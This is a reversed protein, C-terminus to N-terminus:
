SLLEKVKDIILANTRKKHTGIAFIVIDDKNILKKNILFNSTYKIREFCDKIEPKVFPYVGFWAKLQRAVKKNITFAFIPAKPRFNSISSATFGTKTPTIIAKVNLEYSANVASKAVFETYDNVKLLHPEILKEAKRILKDMTKVAELPYKGKATEGSLMVCDTKDLVANIVDSAEARTPRPNKTMSELMQTAVITFKRKERALKIIKKQWIPVEEIPIEVGLDGRAIMVGDSEEIIEELNDLAQKNEIKAILKINEGKLEKLLKKVELIDSKNRVFSLAIFDFDNKVAFEIDKKDKESLFPIKLDVGPINVGKKSSIFGSNKVKCIIDKNKTELVELEILGDDLLIKDGKKIDKYLEKYSISFEKENGIIDKNRITVISGEKLFVEGKFEGTRIEPGKTDLLLAKIEDKEKELKRILKVRRLHEKYDGHSFNLRFIDVYNFLENLIEEKESAPGITAIIKTLRLNNRGM